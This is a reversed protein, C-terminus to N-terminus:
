SLCPFAADELQSLGGGRAKILDFLFGDKLLSIALSGNKGGMKQKVICCM